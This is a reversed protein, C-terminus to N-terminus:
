TALELYLTASYDGTMRWSLIRHPATYEGLHPVYGAVDIIDGLNWSFLPAMPHDVVDISEVFPEGSRKALTRRMQAILANKSKISKDDLVALRRLRPSTPAINATIAADGEGAGIGKAANAYQDGGRTPNLESMVNVGQEFVLDTRRAGAQNSHIQIGLIPVGDTQTTTTTWEIGAETCIDQISRHADPTDEPRLEFAGGDDQAKKRAADYADRSADYEAQAADKDTKASALAATKAAVEANYAVQVTNLDARRAAVVARAATIQAAPAQEIILRDVEKQAATVQTRALSVEDALTTSADQLEKVAEARDKSFSDVVSRLADMRSRAAAAEDDSRTGMKKTTSGTVTVNLWSNQALQADQWVRRILQAPDEEVGRILTEIPTGDLFGPFEIITVILDKGDFESEAVIGTWRRADVTGGTGVHILTGWEELVPRGDPAISLGAEPAITGEMVGYTSLAWEPGDVTMPLETDLWEWTGYRQASLIM